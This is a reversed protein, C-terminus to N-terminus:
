VHRSAHLRDFLALRTEADALIARREALRDEVLRVMVACRVVEDALTARHDAVELPHPSM